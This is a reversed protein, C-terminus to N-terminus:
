TKWLTTSVPQVTTQNAVPKQEDVHNLQSAADVSLTTASCSTKLTEAFTATNIQGLVDTLAFGSRIRKDNDKVWNKLHPAADRGKYDAANVGPQSVIVYVDSLCKELETNIINSLSSSYIVQPPSALISDSM